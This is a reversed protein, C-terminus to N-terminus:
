GGTLRDTGDEGAGHEIQGLEVESRSFVEEQGDILLEEDTPDGRGGMATPQPGPHRPTRVPRNM